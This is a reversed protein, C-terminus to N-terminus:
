KNNNINKFYKKRLIKFTLKYISELILIVFVGFLVFLIIDHINNEFGIGSDEEKTNMQNILLNIKSNIENIQANVNNDNVNVNDSVIDDNDINININERNNNRKNNIKNNRKNRTNRSKKNRSKKNKKNLYYEDTDEDSNTDSNTESNIDNDSEVVFENSDEPIVQNDKESYEYIENPKYNSFPELMLSNINNSNLNDSINYNKYNNKQKKVKGCTSKINLKDFDIDMDLCNNEFRNFGDNCNIKKRKIKKGKPCGKKKPLDTLHTGFAEDITCYSM